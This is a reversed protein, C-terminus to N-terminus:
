SLLIAIYIAVQSKVTKNIDLVKFGHFPTLSAGNEMAVESRWQAFPRLQYHCMTSVLVINTM